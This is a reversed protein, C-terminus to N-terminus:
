GGVEDVVCVCFVYMDYWFLGGNVVVCGIWGCGVCCFFCFCVVFGIWGVCVEVDFWSVCCYWVCLWNGGCYVWM